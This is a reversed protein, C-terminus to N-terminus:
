PKPGERVPVVASPLVERFVPYYGVPKCPANPDDRHCFYAPLYETLYRVGDEVKTKLEEKTEPVIFPYTVPTPSFNVPDGYFDSQRFQVSLAATKIPKGRVMEERASLTFILRIASKKNREGHPIDKPGSEVSISVWPESSFMSRFANYIWYHSQFIDQGLVYGVHPGFKNLIVITDIGEFYKRELPPDSMTASTISVHVMMLLATVSVIILNKGMSRIKM